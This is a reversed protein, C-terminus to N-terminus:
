PNTTLSNNTDPETQTRCSDTNDGRRLNEEVTRYDEASQYQHCEIRSLLFIDVLTAGPHISLLTRINKKRAQRYMYRQHRPSWSQEGPSLLPIGYRHLRYTHLFAIRRYINCFEQCITRLYILHSQFRSAAVGEALSSRRFAGTRDRFGFWARYITTGFRYLLSGGRASVKSSSV